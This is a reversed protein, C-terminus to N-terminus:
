DSSHQGSNKKSHLADMTFTIGELGLSAVLNEVVPIESTKKNQYSESLLILGSNHAFASVISTFNQNPSNYNTVTSKISKGDLSVWDESQLLNNEIIWQKFKDTLETFDINMLVRRVTPYSPIRNKKINLCKILDEKHRKSFKGIGRITYIQSMFAMITIVLVTTLDHRTGEARRLDKLERLKSILSTEMKEGKKNSFM